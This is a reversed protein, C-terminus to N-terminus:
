MSTSTNSFVHFRYLSTYPNVQGLNDFNYKRNVWRFPPGKNICDTKNKVDHVDPGECYYFTGKFLQFFLSDYILSLISFILLFERVLLNRTPYRTCGVGFSAM